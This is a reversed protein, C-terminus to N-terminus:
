RDHSVRCFGHSNADRCFRDSGMDRQEVTILCVMMLNKNLFIHFYNFLLQAGTQNDVVYKSCIINSM